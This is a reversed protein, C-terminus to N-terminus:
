SDGNNKEEVNNLKVRHEITELISSLSEDVIDFDKGHLHSAVYEIYSYSYDLQYGINHEISISYGLYELEETNMNFSLQKNM